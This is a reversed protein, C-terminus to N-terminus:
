SCSLRNRDVYSEVGLIDSIRQGENRISNSAQGISNLFKVGLFWEDWTLDIERAFDHVHRILAGLVQRARPPTNPGMANVVMPTLNPDYGGAATSVKSAVNNITSSMTTCITYRIRRVLTSTFAINKPTDWIYIKTADRTQCRYIHQVETGKFLEGYM